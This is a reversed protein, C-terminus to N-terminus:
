EGKRMADGYNSDADYRAIERAEIESDHLSGDEDCLSCFETVEDAAHTEPDVDYYTEQWEWCYGCFKDISSPYKITTAM